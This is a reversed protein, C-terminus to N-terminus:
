RKAGVPIEVTGMRGSTADRVGIRVYVDSAPLDIEEHIPIGLRMVRAMEKETLDVELGADSYNVRKGEPDYVAQAVELEAQRRGDPLETLVLHHPDISYDVMYRRVPEKLPKDPKGALGPTPQVGHLAPDGAPLVRVEFIVQSLPLSGHLMGGTVPSLKETALKDAKAPDVADYGRRYSTEYEKEELRVEIKRLGGNYNKNAPVYGLTYYNSGDSIASAVAQGVANTNYYAQGGTEEAVQQMTVHSEWWKQPQGADNAFGSAAASQLSLRQGGGADNAPNANPLTMLARADVPYVAVRARALLEDMEELAAGYDRSGGADLHSLDPDLSIPFSGSSWILNKRGPVTSLFRGLQEMAAITMRARVDITYTEMEKSFEELAVATQAPGGAGFDALGSSSEILNQDAIPSIEAGGRKGAIAEAVAGTDTTFGRIMQLKSGLTFVAIRAGPPITKLYRIMQARAYKQDNIPTNLADLLLVNAASTIAYQPFDSYVHPPLVPAKSAQMTDTARHEEFVTLAQAQGDEFVQFESKELGEVPKGGKKERVVVDVLVLDANTRFLPTQEPSPQGQGAQAAAQTSAGAQGSAARVAVLALLAALSGGGAVRLLSLLSNRRMIFM